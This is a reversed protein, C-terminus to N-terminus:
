ETRGKALAADATDVCAQLCKETCADPLKGHRSISFLTAELEKVRALAADREVRVAEDAYQRFHRALAIVTRDGRALMPAIQELAQRAAVEASSDGDAPSAAKENASKM